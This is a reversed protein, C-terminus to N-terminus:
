LDFCRFCRCGTIYAYIIEIAFIFTAHRSQPIILIPFHFNHLSIKCFEEGIRDVNHSGRVTGRIKLLFKTFTWYFQHLGNEIM